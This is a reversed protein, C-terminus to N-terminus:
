PRGLGRSCEVRPELPLSSEWTNEDCYKKWVKWDADNFYTRAIRPTVPCIAAGYKGQDRLMRDWSAIFYWEKWELLVEQNLEDVSEVDYGEKPDDPVRKEPAPWKVPDGKGLLRSFPTEDEPKEETPATFWNPKGLRSMPRGGAERVIEKVAEAPLRVTNGGTGTWITWAQVLRGCRSLPDPPYIGFKMDFRGERTAAKDLGGIRNTTLIFTIRQKEAQENLKKFKPLMGPTLFRLIGDTQQEGERSWLISDFEDFLIVVDTLMSLGEFVLRARTEIKEAGALLIDSPTVEILPVNCSKALAEAITTKGTGPPGYLVLSYKHKTLPVGLIHARMDQLAMAISDARIKSIVLGFDPYFLNLLHINKLEEPMRVSLNSLVLQNIRKDLAQGLGSLARLSIASLWRQCPGKENDREHRWGKPERQWTAEFHRLLRQVLDPTIVEPVHLALEAFAWISEAAAAHLVYGKAFIDFPRHSPIRGANTVQESVARLAREIRADDAGGLMALGHGAFLLEAGDAIRRSQSVTSALERDLISKMYRSTPRLAKALEGALGDLPLALKTMERAKSLTDLYKLLGDIGECVKNRALPSMREASKYYNQVAQAEELAAKALSGIKTLEDNVFDGNADEVKWHSALTDATVRAAKRLLKSHIDWWEKSMFEPVPRQQLDVLAKTLAAFDRCANAFSIVARICWMTVFATQAGDLSGPGAGGLMEDPEAAKYLEYIIRAYSSLGGRSFANPLSESLTELIIAARLVPVHDELGGLVGTSSNLYNFFSEPGLSSLKGLGSSLKGSFEKSNSFTNLALAEEILDGGSVWGKNDDRSGSLMYDMLGKYGEKEQKRVKKRLSDLVRVQEMQQEYEATTSM